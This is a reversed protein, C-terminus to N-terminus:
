DHPGGPAKLHKRLSNLGYALRSKVTGLPIDLIAAITPLSLKKKSICRSCRAVHGALHNRCLAARSAASRVASARADATGRAARRGGAAVPCAPAEARTPVSRPQRHPFVMASCSRITSRDSAAPMIVLVDQLLDDADTARSRGFPVRWSPQVSRLLAELAARDDCQARLVWQM